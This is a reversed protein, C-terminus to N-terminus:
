EYLPPPVPAEPSTACFTSTKVLVIKTYGQMTRSWLDSISAPITHPSAHNVPLHHRINRLVSYYQVSCCHTHQLFPTKVISPFARTECACPDSLRFFSGSNSFVKRRQQGLRRHCCRFRFRCRMVIVMDQIMHESLETMSMLIRYKYVAYIATAVVLGGSSDCDTGEGGEVM